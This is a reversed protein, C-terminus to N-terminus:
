AAPEKPPEAGRLSLCRGIAGGLTERTLPKTLFDDMGADLCHRRDEAAVSATLAIIPTHTGRNTEFSRIARAASYGDMEPMDCDMLIVDFAQARVAQVAERGNDTITAAYGLSALQKSLILRNIANDEALLVRPRGGTHARQLALPASQTLDQAAPGSAAPVDMHQAQQFVATFTVTTGIALQSEITIDGGMLRGLNRAISLGLGTGGYERMTSDNAQAFRQFLKALDEASIGIGTDKVSFRLEVTGGQLRKAALDLTVSGTHTFKIANGVLNMLIQRIRFPDGRLLAPVEPAVSLELKIHKKHATPALLRLVREAKRAPSFDVEELDVKGAEIKSINLVGDILHLLTHATDDITVAFERQEESLKTELLLETMGIIGNMPTRIEHSTTTLFISKQDSNAVAHDRARRMEDRENLIHSMRRFARDLDVIEDSGTMPQGLDNGQAILDATEGLRRIRTTLNRGFLTTATLTFIFAAGWGILLIDLHPRIGNDRSWLMAIAAAVVLLPLCTIVIARDGLTFRKRTNRRFV